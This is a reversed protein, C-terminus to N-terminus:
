MKQSNSKLVSKIEEVLVDDNTISGEAQKRDVESNVYLHIDPTLHELKIQLIRSHPINELRIRRGLTERCSLVLKSQSNPKLQPSWIYRLFNIFILVELEILTDVGDVVLSFSQLSLLQQLVRTLDTFSTTASKLSICLAAVEDYLTPPMLRDSERYHIVIQKILAHLIDPATPPLPRAADVYYSLVPLKPGITPERLWDIIASRCLTLRTSSVLPSMRISQNVVDLQTQTLEGM